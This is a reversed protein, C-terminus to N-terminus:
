PSTTWINMRMIWIVRPDGCPEFKADHHLTQQYPMPLKAWHNEGPSGLRHRAAIEL